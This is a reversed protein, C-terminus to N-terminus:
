SIEEEAFARPGGGLAARAGPTALLLLGLVFLAMMALHYDHNFTTTGSLTVVIGLTFGAVAFLHAALASAWARGTRAWVEYAALAFLLGALGEVVGAPIISPEVFVAVGLPIRAGVLHVVGAFLLAVTDFLTLARLAAVVGRRAVDERDM